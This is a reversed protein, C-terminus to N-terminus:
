GTDRLRELLGPEFPRELRRAIRRAILDAQNFGRRRLRSAHLPVPVVLDPSGVARACAASGGARGRSLRGPALRRPPTRITGESEQLRPDPDPAARCLTDGGSLRHLPSGEALCAPCGATAHSAVGVRGWAAESGPVSRTSRCGVARVGTRGGGGHFRRRAAGVCRGCRRSRDARRLRVTTRRWHSACRRMRTRRPSARRGCARRPIESGTGM